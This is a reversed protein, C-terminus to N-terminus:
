FPLDDDPRCDEVVFENVKFSKITTLVFAKKGFEKALRKAENEAGSLTSHRYTPTRENELYVMFFSQNKM